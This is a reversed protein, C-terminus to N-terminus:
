KLYFIVHIFFTALLVSHLLSPLQYPFLSLFFSAILFLGSFFSITPTLFFFRSPSSIPFSSLFFAHFFLPLFILYLSLAFLIVFSKSKPQMQCLCLQFITSCKNKKTTTTGFCFFFDIFFCGLSNM